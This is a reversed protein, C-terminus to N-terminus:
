DRPSPSTYLLCSGLRHVPAADGDAGTYRHVLHLNAVPVYLKAGEAYELTLFETTHEGIVMHQLGLFRGVGHDQHVIPAGISLDTLDRLIASADRQGRRRRAAPPRVGLIVTEPLVSLAQKKLQFAQELPAICLGFSANSHLFESWSDFLAPRLNAPQLRELLLERRGASDTTILLRGEQAQM